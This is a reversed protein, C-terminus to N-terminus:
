LLVCATIQAPTFTHNPLSDIRLHLPRAPDFPHDPYPEAIELTGTLGDIACGRLTVRVKKRLFPMRWTARIEEVLADETAPAEAPHAGPATEPRSAILLFEQQAPMAHNCLM